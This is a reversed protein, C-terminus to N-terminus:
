RQRTRAIESEVMEKLPEYGLKQVPIGNVFFTPTGRIGLAKGDEEDQKVLELHAGKAVTAQFREMDLGLQEAYDPILDPRPADHSGWVPQFYFLAELMEWFKGQERAAELAGAATMSNPHYPMYRVVLRVDGEHEKLVQKVVPYMARCAECEPDLFEVLTVAADAPGQSPSHPREFRQEVRNAEELQENEAEQESNLYFRAGVLAILGAVAAIGILKAIDKNM